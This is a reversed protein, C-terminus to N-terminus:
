HKIRQLRHTHKIRQIRSFATSHAPAHTHTHTHTHTHIHTHTYTRTRTHAHARIHTHTYTRTRTHAHAHIHTHTYTRTRKHAHAHIHTCACACVRVRVYVCVCMCACACVRVYVGGVYKSTPGSPGAGTELHLLDAYKTLASHSVGIGLLAARNTTFLKSVFQSLQATGHSGVKHPACYLSNGLGTRFAAQHLLEVAQTAPSRSALELKINPTARELEWPKFAQNSAVETLYEVAMDTQDRTAQVTYLTHERGQTCVMSAGAQGM